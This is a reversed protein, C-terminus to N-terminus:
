EIGWDRSLDAWGPNLQRVWSIKKERRWGKIEKERAIAVRIDRWAEYFVLERIAYRSAFGSKIGRRHEQLRRLLDSTVGTYLTRSDSSLIYVHYVREPM